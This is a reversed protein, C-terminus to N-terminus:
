SGSILESIFLKALEVSTKIKMNKADCLVKCKPISFEILKKAREEWRKGGVGPQRGRM